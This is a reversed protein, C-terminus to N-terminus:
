RLMPRLPVCIPMRPVTPDSAPTTPGDTQPNSFSRRPLVRRSNATLKTPAPEAMTAM